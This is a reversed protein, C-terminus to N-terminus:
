IDIRFGLQFPYLEPGMGEEFLETFYYTLYLSSTNNKKDRHGLRFTAGVRINDINLDTNRQIYKEKKGDVEHKIKLVSMVDFGWIIGASMYSMEKSGKKHVQAELILPITIHGTNFKSKRVNFDDELFYEEIIGTTDNLKISNDHRFRYYNLEYGLGTVLGMSNGALPISIQAFNINLNWSNLTKLDTYDLASPSKLSFDRYMFNNLGFEIGSWHGRFRNSDVKQECDKENLDLIRKKDGTKLDIRDIIMGNQYQIFMFLKNETEIISTDLPLEYGTSDIQSFGHRLFVSLFLLLSGLFRISGPISKIGANRDSIHSRKKM